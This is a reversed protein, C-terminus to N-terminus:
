QILRTGAFNTMYFFSYDKNSLHNDNLYVKDSKIAVKLEHQTPKVYGKPVGFFTVSRAKPEFKMYCCKISKDEKIMIDSHKAVEAAIIRNKSLIVKAYITM